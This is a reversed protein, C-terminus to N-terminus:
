TSDCADCALEKVEWTLNCKGMLHMMIDGVALPCDGLVKDAALMRAANLACYMAYPHSGNSLEQMLLSIEM